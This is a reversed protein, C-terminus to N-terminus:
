DASDGPRCGRTSAGDPTDTRSTIEGLCRALAAAQHHRAFQQVVGADPMSHAGGTCYRRTTWTSSPLAAPTASCSRRTAQLPWWWTATASALRPTRGSRAVCSGDWTSSAPSGTTAGAVVVEIRWRGITDAEHERGSRRQIDFLPCDARNSVLRELVFNGV